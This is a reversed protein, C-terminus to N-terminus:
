LGTQLLTAQFAGRGAESKRLEREGGSNRIPIWRFFGYYVDEPPLDWEDFEEGWGEGRAVERCAKLFAEAEHCGKAYFGWLDGGNSTLQEVDIGERTESM